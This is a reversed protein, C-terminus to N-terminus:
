ICTFQYLSGVVCLLVYHSMVPIQVLSVYSSMILCLQSKFWRCLSVYPFMLLSLQSKFWQCMLLCLSDISPNSGAVYPSMLFCLIVSKNSMKDSLFLWKEKYFRQNTQYKALRTQWKTLCFYINEKIFDSIQKVNQWVFIIM